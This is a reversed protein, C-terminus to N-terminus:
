RLLIQGDLNCEIDEDDYHDLMSFSSYQSPHAPKKRNM